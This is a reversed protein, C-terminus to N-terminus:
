AWVTRWSNDGAQLAEKYEAAIKELPAGSIHDNFAKGIIARGDYLGPWFGTGQM